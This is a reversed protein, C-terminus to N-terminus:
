RPDNLTEDGAREQRENIAMEEGEWRCLVGRM